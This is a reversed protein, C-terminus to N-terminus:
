VYSVFWGTEQMHVPPREHFQRFKASEFASIKKVQAVRLRNIDVKNEVAALAAVVQISRPALRPLFAKIEHGSKDDSASRRWSILRRIRGALDQASRIPTFPILMQAVSLLSSLARVVIGDRKRSLDPCRRLAKRGDGSAFDIYTTAAFGCYFILDIYPPRKLHAFLADLKATM